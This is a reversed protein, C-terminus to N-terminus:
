YTEYIYFAGIWMGVILGVAAAFVNLGVWLDLVRTVYPPEEYPGPFLPIAATVLCLALATVEAAIFLAFYGLM